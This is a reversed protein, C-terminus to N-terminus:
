NKFEVQICMKKLSSVYIKDEAKQHKFTFFFLYIFRLCTFKVMQHGMLVDSQEKIRNFESLVFNYAIKAKRLAIPKFAMQDPAVRNACM